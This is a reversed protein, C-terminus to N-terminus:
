RQALEDSKESLELSDIMRGAQQGAEIANIFADTLDKPNGSGSSNSESFRSVGKSVAKGVAVTTARTRRLFPIAVKDLMEAVAPVAEELRENAYQQAREGFEKARLDRDYRKRTKADGLIRWASAIESFDLNEGTTQEKGIQADPHSLKALKVYQRKLESRTSNRPADLIEYLTKAKNMTAVLKETSVDKPVDDPVDEPSEIESPDFGIEQTGEQYAQFTLSARQRSCESVFGKCEPAFLASCLISAALRHRM